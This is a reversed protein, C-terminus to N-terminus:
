PDARIGPAMPHCMFPDISDCLFDLMALTAGAFTEDVYPLVDLMGRMLEAAQIHPDSGFFGLPVHVAEGVGRHDLPADLSSHFVVGGNSNADINFVYRRRALAVLDFFVEAVSDFARLDAPTARQGPGSLGLGEGIPGGFIQKDLLDAVDKSEVTGYGQIKDKLVYESIALTFRAGM